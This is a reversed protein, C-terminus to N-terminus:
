LNVMLKGKTVIVQIEKTFIPIPIDLRIAALM